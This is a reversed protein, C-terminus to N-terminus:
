RIEIAYINVQTYIILNIMSLSEREVPLGGPVRVPSGLCQAMIWGQYGLVATNSPVVSAKLLQCHRYVQPLGVTVLVM